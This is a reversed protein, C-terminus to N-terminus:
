EGWERVKYLFVGHCIYISSEYLSTMIKSLFRFGSSHLENGINSINEKERKQWGSSWSGMSVFCPEKCLSQLSQEITWTSYRQLVKRGSGWGDKKKVCSLGKWYHVQWWFFFRQEQPAQWVWKNRSFFGCGQCLHIFTSIQRKLLLNGSWSGEQKDRTRRWDPHPLAQIKM